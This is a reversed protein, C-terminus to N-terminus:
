ATFTGFADADFDIGDCLAAAAYLSRAVTAVDNVQAFRYGINIRISEDTARGDFILLEIFVRYADDVAAEVDERRVLGVATASIAEIIACGNGARHDRLHRTTARLVTATTIRGTEFPCTPHCPGALHGGCGVCELNHDLVRELDTPVFILPKIM